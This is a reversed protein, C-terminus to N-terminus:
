LVDAMEQALTQDGFSAIDAKLRSKAVVHLGHVEEKSSYIGADDSIVLCLQANSENAPTLRLIKEFFDRDSSRVYSHLTAFPKIPKHLSAGASLTFAYDLNSNRASKDLNQAVDKLGGLMSRYYMLVPGQTAPQPTPQVPQPAPQVPQPIPQAPQAQPAEQVPQTPQPMAQAPPPSQAPVAQDEKYKTAAERFKSLWDVEEETADPKAESAAAEQTPAPTPTVATQVAPAVSAPATEAPTSSQVAPTAPETSSDDFLLPSRGDPYLFDLINNKTFRHRGTATKVEAKLKDDELYRYVSRLSVGLIEAVETSTYFRDDLQM